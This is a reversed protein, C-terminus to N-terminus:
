PSLSSIRRLLKKSRPEYKDASSVQWPIFSYDWNEHRTYAKKGNNRLAADSSELTVRRSFNQCRNGQTVGTTQGGVEGWHHYVGTINGGPRALSDILDAATVPDTVGFLVIPITRTANKAALAASTSSTVLVDVKLRVLDEALVPLRDLKDQASRYQSSRLTRVRVLASHVSSESSEAAHYRSLFCCRSVLWGIKTVKGAAARRRDAPVSHTLLLTTLLWILFNKRM